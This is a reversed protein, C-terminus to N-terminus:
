RYGCSDELIYCQFMVRRVKIQYVSMVVPVEADDLIFRFDFWINGEIYQSTAPVGGDYNVDRENINMHFELHVRIIVREMIRLRGWLVSSVIVVPVSGMTTEGKLVVSSCTSISPTLDSMISCLLKGVLKTGM